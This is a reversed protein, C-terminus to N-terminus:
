PTTIFVEQVNLIGSVIEGCEPTSNCVVNKRKNEILHKVHCVPCEVVYRRFLDKKKIASWIALKVDLLSDMPEIRRLDEFTYYAKEELRYM